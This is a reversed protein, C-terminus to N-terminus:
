VWYRSVPVTVFHYIVKAACFHKFISQGLIIFSLSKDKGADDKAFQLSPHLEISGILNTELDPESLVVVPIMTPKFAPLSDVNNVIEEKTVNSNTPVIAEVKTLYDSDEFDVISTDALQEEDGNSIEYGCFEDDFLDSATNEPQHDKNDEFNAENTSADDKLSRKTVTTVKTLNHTEKQTLEFECNVVSQPIKKEMQEQFSFSRQDEEEQLVETTSSDKFDSCIQNLCHNQSNQPVSSCSVDEVFVFSEYNDEVIENESVQESNEFSEIYDRTSIAESEDDEDPDNISDGEKVSFSEDSYSPEYEQNKIQEFYAILSTVAGQKIASAPTPSKNVLLDLNRNRILINKVSTVTDDTLKSTYQGIEVHVNQDAQLSKLNNNVTSDVHESKSSTVEKCETNVCYVNVNDVIVGIPRNNNLSSDSSEIHDLSSIPKTFSAGPLVNRVVGEKLRSERLDESLVDSRDDEDVTSLPYPSLSDRQSETNLMTKLYETFNRNSNNKMELSYKGSDLWDKVVQTKSLEGNSVSFLSTVEERLAKVTQGEFDDLVNRYSKSGSDEINKNDHTDRDNNCTFPYQSSSYLPPNAFSKDEKDALDGHDFYSEKFSPSKTDSFYVGSDNEESEKILVKNEIQKSEEELVALTAKVSCDVTSNQWLMSEVDLSLLHLDSKNENGLSSYESKYFVGVITASNEPISTKIGSDEEKNCDLKEGVSEHNDAVLPLELVRNDIFMEFINSEVCSKHNLTLDEGSEEIHELSNDTDDVDVSIELNSEFNLTKLESCVQHDTLEETPLRSKEVFDNEACATLTPSSYMGKNSSATESNLVHTVRNDEEIQKPFVNEHQDSSTSPNPQSTQPKHKRRPPPMIFVTQDSVGTNLTRSDETTMMKRKSRRAPVPPTM